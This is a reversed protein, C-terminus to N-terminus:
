GHDRAQDIEYDAPRRQHPPKRPDRCQEQAIDGFAATHEFPVPVPDGSGERGLDGGTRGEANRGLTKRTQTMM